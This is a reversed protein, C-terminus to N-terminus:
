RQAGQMQAHRQNQAATYAAQSQTLKAVAETLRTLTAVDELDIAESDQEISEALATIVAELALRTQASGRKRQSHAAMDTPSPANASM